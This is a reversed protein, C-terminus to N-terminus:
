PIAVCDKPIDPSVFVTLDERVAKKALKGTTSNDERQVLVLKWRSNRLLMLACQTICTTGPNFSTGCKLNKLLQCNDIVFVCYEWTETEAWNLAQLLTMGEAQYCSTAGHLLGARVGAVIGDRNKAICGFVGKKTEHSWSADCYIKIDFIESKEWSFGAEDGIVMFKFSLELITTVKVKTNLAVSEINM